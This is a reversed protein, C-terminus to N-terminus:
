IRTVQVTLPAPHAEIAGAELLATLMGLMTGMGMDYAPCAHVPAPQGNRSKREGGFIPYVDHGGEGRDEMTASVIGVFVREGARVYVRKGKENGLWHGKTATRWVMDPAPRKQMAERLPLELADKARQYPDGVGSAKEAALAQQVRWILNDKLWGHLAGRLNGDAPPLMGMMVGILNRALLADDDPIAAFMPIAIKGKPDERTAAILKQVSKYLRGGLQRGFDQVAPNPDPYFFFRSPAMFDGPCRPLAEDRYHERRWTGKEVHKGDPHQPDPDPIGFWYTCIDGLVPTIFDNGLDLKTAPAGPLRVPLAAAEEFAQDIVAQALRHAIEFAEREGVDM